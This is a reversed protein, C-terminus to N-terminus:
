RGIGLDVMRRKATWIHAPRNRGCLAARFRRMAAEFTLGFRELIYFFILAAIFFGWTYWSVLRLVVFVIPFAARADFIIFRAPRMNDRWHWQTPEVAM